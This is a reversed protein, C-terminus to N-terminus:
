IVCIGWSTARNLPTPPPDAASTARSSSPCVSSGHTRTAIANLRSTPATENEPDSTVKPFSCSSMVVLGTTNGPSGTSMPRPNTAAIAADTARTSVPSVHSATTSSASPSKPPTSRTSGTPPASTGITIESSLANVPRATAADPMTSSLTSSTTAPVSTPADPVMRVRAIADAIPRLTEPIRNPANRPPEVAPEVTAEM